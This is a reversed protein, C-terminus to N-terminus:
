TEGGVLAADDFEQPVALVLARPLQRLLPEPREPTRLSLHVLHGLDNGLAPPSTVLCSSQPHPQVSRRLNPCPSSPAPLLLEEQEKCVRSCPRLVANCNSEAENLADVNIISLTTHCLTAVFSSTSSIRFIAHDHSGKVYGTKGTVCEDYQRWIVTAEILIM